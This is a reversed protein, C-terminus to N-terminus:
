ADHTSREFPDKPEVLASLFVDDSLLPYVENSGLTLGSMYLQFETSIRHAIRALPVGKTMECTAKLPFSQWVPQRDSRTIQSAIQTQSKRAFTHTQIHRAHQM